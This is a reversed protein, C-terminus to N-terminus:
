GNESYKKLVAKVEPLSEMFVEVCKPDFQTGSGEQIISLAKELPFAPKYVRPSALADFVDAVAMIRAALPIVEGHLGEPYGKGDWREHHYAAMNRAEKLYNEGEVTDIAKEMIIRGATTHTKIIEYEAEDLKGKKNLVNDPISIKGIDHLPASRVVDSMFKPTIKEAYYGKRKLGEVIIKVYAATKQIHAGTDSDRNEVLDAMTIILGDQMRATNESFRRISRMQETQNVAMDCIARYLKEVEDGTHVNIERLARVSEDLKQQDTGANIFDGVKNVINNLPYVMYIGTVWLAYAIVLVFFGALILVVRLVFNGLTDAMYRLSLDSGAYAKCRGASDTIPYYATLMWGSIDDSEIPAIEEGAFLQPLYPEFAEEFEIKDGHSYAPTDNTDLDFVVYCGDERIQVVYLYTVGAANTRIKHLMEETETYGEAEEGYRIYDDVMDGDVVDAAFKAANVAIETKEQKQTRFVLRMSIYGMLVTLTVAVMLFMLTMRSKLSYKIGKSLSNMTKIEEQSPPKQRWGSNRIQLRIHKPMFYLLVLAVGSSLGKDFIELMVNLAMLMVPMPAHVHGGLTEMMSRLSDNQAGGLVTLEILTGIMGTVFSLVAVYVAINKPKRMNKKRVAWATYIAVFANIIGFYAASSNFVTCIANSAIATMIGPFLGGVAAVTITGVSDMYVPLGAKYSVFSLLVNVAMGMMVSAARMRSGRKTGYSYKDM